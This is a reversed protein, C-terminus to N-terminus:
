DEQDFEEPDEVVGVHPSLDEDQARYVSGRRMIWRDWGDSAEADFTYLIGYSGSAVRAISRFLETIGPTHHNHCGALWVHWEGNASRLNATENVISGSEALLVGVM